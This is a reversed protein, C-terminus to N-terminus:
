FPSTVLCNPYRRHRHSSWFVPTSITQLAIEQGARWIAMLSPSSDARDQLLVGVGVAIVRLRALVAIEDGFPMMSGVLTTRVASCSAAEMAPQSIVVIHHDGLQRFAADQLAAFTAIANTITIM